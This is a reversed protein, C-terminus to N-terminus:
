SKVIRAITVVSAIPKFHQSRSVSSNCLIQFEPKIKIINGSKSEIWEPNFGRSILATLEFDNRKLDLM